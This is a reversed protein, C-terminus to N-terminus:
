GRLQALQREREAIESNLKRVKEARV